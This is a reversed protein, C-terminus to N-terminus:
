VVDIWYEKLTALSIFQFAYARRLQLNFQEVYNHKNICTNLRKSTMVDTLVMRKKAYAVHTCTLQCNGQCLGCYTPLLRQSVIGIVTELLLKDSVTLDKLREIVGKCSKAHITAIVLHGTLAARIAMQATQEDRIEGIVLVDPHHRLSAKILTDYDLGAQQNVEVQFFRSDTIEVPDEMMFISQQKEEYLRSLLYHVMTTKGSDVPGAFIVIGQRKQLLAYIQELQYAFFHNVSQKVHKQKLLRIVMSEQALYNSITSTRIELKSQQITLRASGSQVKRKEGVDMHAIYKLYSILREAYAKEIKKQLFLRGLFRFYIGYNTKQPVIHIDSISKEMAKALMKEVFQEIM